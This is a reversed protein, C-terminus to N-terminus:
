DIFEDDKKKKAEIKKEKIDLKDLEIEKELKDFRKIVKELEIFDNIGTLEDITKKFIRLNNLTENSLKKENSNKELIKLAKERLKTRIDATKLFWETIEKEKTKKAEKFIDTARVGRSELWRNITRESVELGFHEKAEKATRMQIYGNTKERMWNVVKLKKNEEIKKMVM